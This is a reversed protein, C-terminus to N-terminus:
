AVYKSMEIYKYIEIEIYKQIKTHTNTRGPGQVAVCQALTHASPLTALNPPATAVSSGWKGPWLSGPATYNFIFLGPTRPFEGLQM